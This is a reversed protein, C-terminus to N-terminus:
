PSAVASHTCRPQKMSGVYSWKNKYIDYRFYHSVSAKGSSLLLPDLKISAESQTSETQYASGPLHEDPSTSPRSARGSAQKQTTDRVPASHRASQAESAASRTCNTILALLSRSSM